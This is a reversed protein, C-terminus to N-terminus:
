EERSETAMVVAWESLEPVFVKLETVIFLSVCPFCRIICCDVGEFLEEAPPL